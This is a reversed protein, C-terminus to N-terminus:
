DLAPSWEIINGGIWNQFAMMNGYIRSSCGWQNEPYVSTKEAFVGHESRKGWQHQPNTTLILIGRTRHTYEM